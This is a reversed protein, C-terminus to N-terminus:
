PTTVLSYLLIDNMTLKSIDDPNVANVFSYYFFNSYDLNKRDSLIRMFSSNTSECDFHMISGDKFSIAFKAYRLLDIGDVIIAISLPSIEVRRVVCDSGNIVIPISPEVSVHLIDSTHHIWELVWSGRDLIEIRTEDDGNTSYNLSIVCLKIISDSLPESTIDHQVVTIINDNHHTIVPESIGLAIGDSAPKDNTSIIASRVLIDNLEILKYHEPLEIEYFVYIGYNDALTQKVTITIGDKSLSAIPYNVCSEIEEMEESVLYFCDKIDTDKDAHVTSAAIGSILMMGILVSLIHRYIRKRNVKNCKIDSQPRKSSM